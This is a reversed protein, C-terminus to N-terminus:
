SDFEKGLLLYEESVGNRKYFAIAGTNFSEVGVEIEDWDYERAFDMAYRLLQGGIGEGRRGEDVVLENILATGKRHLVSRYLVLTILGVVQGDEEYVFSRYVEHDRRIADFQRDLDALDGRHEYGIHRSLQKILSLIDPLDEKEWERITEM